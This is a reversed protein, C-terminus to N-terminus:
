FLKQTTIYPQTLSRLFNVQPLESKPTCVNGGLNPIAVTYM